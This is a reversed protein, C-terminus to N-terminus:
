AGVNYMNNVMSQNIRKMMAKLQKQPGCEYLETIGDNIANQMCQDWKVASILQDGLMSCIADVSTSSDIAESTVNMYVKCRPPRMSPKTKELAALLKERAPLMIPTHFAGSVKLRKAQLAGAKTVKEELVDIASEDGACSFGKPFM